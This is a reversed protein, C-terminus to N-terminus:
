FDTGVKDIIIIVLLIRIKEVSSILVSRSILIKSMVRELIIFYLKNNRQIM